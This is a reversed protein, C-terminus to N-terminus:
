DTRCYYRVIGTTTFISFYQLLTMDESFPESFEEFFSHDCAITDKELSIRQAPENNGQVQDNSSAQNSGRALSALPTHDDSEAADTPEDDSVNKPVADKIEDIEEEDSTLGSLDSQNEDFILDIADDVNYNKKVKM